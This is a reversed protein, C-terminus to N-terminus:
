QNDEDSFLEDISDEDKSSEKKITKKEAPRKKKAQEVVQDGDKGQRKKGRPKRFKLRVGCSESFLGRLPPGKLQTPLDSGDLRKDDQTVQKGHWFKKPLHIPGSFGSPSAGHVPSFENLIRRTLSLGIDCIQNGNMTADVDVADSDMELIESYKLQRLIKLSVGANTQLIRALSERDKQNTMQPLMLAELAMQLSDKFLAMLEDGANVHSMAEADYDPHHAMFYILFVLIFEPMENVMTGSNGTASRNLSMKLLISRRRGIYQRLSRFAKKMNPEYPDAGYLAYLAAVKAARQKAGGPGLNQFYQVTTDIKKLLAQRVELISDQCALGLGLYDSGNFTSDYTKCLRFMSKAAALRIWGADPSTDAIQKELALKEEDSYQSPDYEPGSSQMSQGSWNLHKLKWKFGEFQPASTDMDTLDQLEECIQKALSLLGPTLEKTCHIPVLSQSLAKLLEAKIEVDPSPNAWRPESESGQRDSLPKGRSLDSPLLKGMVIEHLKSCYLEMKDMDMRMVTSLVKIHSLLLSHDGKVDKNRLATWSSNCITSVYQDKDDLFRIAYMLAYAAHKSSRHRGCSCLDVLKELARSDLLVKESTFIYKGAKSLVEAALSSEFEDDSTLFKTLTSLTGVFLRPESKSLDAIFQYLGGDESANKLATTLIEPAILTPCMRASLAQMLDATPGKSGLRALLEKAAGSAVAFSNGLTAMTGLNKFINNDKMGFVKELSEHARPVHKMLAAVKRIKNDLRESLSQEKSLEPGAPKESSAVHSLGHISTRTKRESKVELRLQLMSAVHEQLSCKRKLLDVIPKKAQEPSEKWVASWWDCIMSASMKKMPFIGHRFVEDEIFSALETDAVQSLSCIGVIFEIVKKRKPFIQVDECQLCWAKIIKGIGLAATKRVSLKTDWLRVTVAEYLSNDEVVDSYEAAISCCALTAANRVKEEGDKLRHVTERIVRNKQEVMPLNAILGCANQLVRIRVTAEVDNLRGLVGDLLQPYECSLHRVAMDSRDKSTLLKCILDLGELRRELSGTRLSPELHPMVPLMIQPSAEYVRLVLQSPNGVLDSNTRAGDLLQTLFKQVHPQLSERSKRVLTQAFLQAVDSVDDAGGGLSSPALSGLICDLLAQSIIDSEEILTGLVDLAPERISDYIEQSTLSQFIVSCLDVLLGDAQDLDLMLLCCKIKATMELLDLTPQFYPSRPDGLNKMVAVFLQFISTLSDDSFPTDPAHLRLVHFCCIAVYLKVEKDKHKVLDNSGLAKVVDGTARKVEASRQSSRQLLEALARIPDIIDDKKKLSKMSVLKKGLNKARAAVESASLDVPKANKKLSSPRNSSKLLTAESRDRAERGTM